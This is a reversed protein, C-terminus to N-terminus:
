FTYMPPPDPPGDWVVRSTQIQTQCIITHIYATEPAQKALDLIISRSRKKTEIELNEKLKQRRAMRVEM